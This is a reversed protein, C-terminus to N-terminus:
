LSRDIGIEPAYANENVSGDENFIYDAYPMVFERQVFTRRVAFDAFFSKKSSYGVGLAVNHTLEVPIEYYSDTYSDYENRQASNSTQM